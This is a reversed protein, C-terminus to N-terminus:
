TTGGHGRRHRRLGKIRQAIAQHFSFIMRRSNEIVREFVNQKRSLFPADQRIDKEKLFIEHPRVFLNGSSLAAVVFHVIRM